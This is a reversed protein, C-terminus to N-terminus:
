GGAVSGVAYIAKLNEHFVGVVRSLNRFLYFYALKKNKKKKFSDGFWLSKFCVNINWEYQKDTTPPSSQKMREKPSGLHILPLSDEQWHLLCLLSLNSAWTPLIGQLLFHCGVGTNKGPSDWPSLLKTAQLGHPWLSNFLVSTVACGRKPNCASPPAVEQWLLFLLVCGVLDWDEFAEARLNFMSSRSVSCNGLSTMDM